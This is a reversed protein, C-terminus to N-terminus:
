KREREQKIQEALKMRTEYDKTEDFRQLLEGELDNSYTRSQEIPNRTDTIGVQVDDMNITTQIEDIQIANLREQLQNRLEEINIDSM